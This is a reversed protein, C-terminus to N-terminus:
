NNEKNLYILNIFVALFFLQSSRIAPFNLNSDVLYIVLLCILSLTFPNKYKFYLKIAKSIPYIFILMFLILGVIGLEVANELFDNHVTYPIIYSLINENDTEISKIKWNGLGIGKIPNSYFLDIAQSYYRLRGNTSQEEISISSIRNVPNANNNSDLNAISLCFALFATSFLIGVQSKFFDKIQKKEYIFSGLYILILLILTLIAARSALIFIIFIILFSTIISIVKILINKVQISIFLVFQLHFLYVFSTINRNFYFGMIEKNFNNNYPEVSTIEIYNTLSPYIHIVASILFFYAIQKESLDLFKLFVYFVNFTIYFNFIFISRVLVETPNIAYFYSAIAWLFYLGIVISIKSKLTVNLNSKM